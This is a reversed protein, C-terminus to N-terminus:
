DFLKHSIMACRRIDYKDASAGLSVTAPKRTSMNIATVWEDPSDINCTFCNNSIVADQTIQDSIVCPLGNFQAELLSVPLGEYLSPFAFVDFSSLWAQIDNQAGAFLVKDKVGMLEALSTIEDQLEGEGVIVLFANPKLACLSVLVKVLFSHNKQPSLRGISGIVFANDLGLDKRLKNRKEECFAVRESDVLNPVFRYQKEPFMYKAAVDSCAWFETGARLMRKRHLRHLAKLLLSEPDKSNHSHVIRRPIKSKHAYNLVDINAAHNTNFWLGSYEGKHERFFLRLDRYYKIPNHNKATIVFYRNATGQFLHEFNEPREFTIFDFSCFDVHSVYNNIVMETGAIRNSLGWVLYRKM